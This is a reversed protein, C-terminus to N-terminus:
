ENFNTKIILIACGSAIDIYDKDGIIISTM